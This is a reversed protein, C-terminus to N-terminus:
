RLVLEDALHDLAAAVHRCVSLIQTRRFRCCEDRKEFCQMRCSLSGRAICCERFGLLFASGRLLAIWAVRREIRMPIRTTDPQASERLPGSPIGTDERTAEDENPKRSRPEKRALQWSKKQVTRSKAPLQSVERLRRRPIASRGCSEANAALSRRAERSRPRLVRSATTARKAGSIGAIWERDMTETARSALFRVHVKAAQTKSAQRRRLVAPIAHEPPM